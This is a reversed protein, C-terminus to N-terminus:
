HWFRHSARVLKDWDPYSDIAENMMDVFTLTSRGQLMSPKPATLRPPYSSSFDRKSWRWSGRDNMDFTYHFIDYDSLTNIGLGGAEAQFTKHVEHRVGARAATLTWAWMELVWGFARDAEPDRKLELCLKFWPEVLSVLQEKGIILPSPGM